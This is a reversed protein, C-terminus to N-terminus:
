TTGDRRGTRLNLKTDIFTSVVSRADPGCNLVGRWVMMVQNRDAEIIVRDLDVPMAAQGAAFKARMDFTVRPLEFEVVSQGGLNELRVREGGRLRSAVCQADPSAVLHRRQFDEPWLPARERQWREDATGARELRPSWAAPVAAFCAPAPQEHWHALLADPDELNPLPKDVAHKQKLYYGVGIPNAAYRAGTEADAGGYAREYVLPMAAFPEPQSARLGLLSRHWRRDGFVRLRRQMAGVRMSVDLVKCPRGDASRATGYLTVATGPHDMVLEPDRLLTSLGADGAYRTSEAVPEPTEALTLEGDAGYQFTGKVSVVWIHEAKENFVVTRAVAFPTANVIQLM